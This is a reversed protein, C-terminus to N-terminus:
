AKVAAAILRRHSQQLRKLAPNRSRMRLAVCHCVICMEGAVRGLPMPRACIDCLVPRYVGVRVHGAPVRMEKQFVRITYGIDDTDIIQVSQGPAYIGWVTPLEYLLVGATAAM